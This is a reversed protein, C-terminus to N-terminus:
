TQSYKLEVLTHTIISCLLLQLVQDQQTSVNALQKTQILRVLEFLMGFKVLVFPWFLKLRFDWTGKRKKCFFCWISLQVCFVQFQKRSLVLLVLIVLLVLSVLEVLLVIEQLLFVMDSIPCLVSSFTELNFPYWV